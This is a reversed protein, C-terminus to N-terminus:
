FDNSSLLRSVTHVISIMKPYNMRRPGVLGITGQASGISYSSLVLSYDDLIDNNIEGGILVKVGVPEEIKDLLHIIIDENEVLEIVSRMRNKDEFEPQSILNQTGALHLTGSQSATYFLKDLSDIFLRLLPADKDEFNKVIQAFNDRLYTLTRNATKENIYAIIEQINKTDIEINAELTVTRVINSDFAIVVLIRNASLPVIEIKHIIFDQLYPLRVIGLYHSLYGLLKSADKLTTETSDKSLKNKLEDLQNSSLMNIEYTKLSDVYFRYGKDTPVRGASTHPHSIFELEELDSMINRLTASSLKMDDEIYKSLAQSGVPVAKLIYLQIIRQLISQERESLERNKIYKFSNDASM